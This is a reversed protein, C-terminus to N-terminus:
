DAAAYVEEGNLEVRVSVPIGQRVSATVVCFDEFMGLCRQLRGPALTDGRLAIVVSLGGIRLRGQENRVMTGTVETHVGQPEVHAKRLCFLLSASLCNGVAAALLRAPNPGAAGGLPPPEDVQLPAMGPQEFDVTFQYGERADMHIRFTGEEAM